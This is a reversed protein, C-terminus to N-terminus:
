RLVITKRVMRLISEDAGDAQLREPEVWALDLSEEGVRFATDAAQLLFRFDFHFHDPEDRREPILHVDLDFLAEDLLQLDEIGSEERAERLAAAQMSDDQEVHGGPQLWRELKRHHTLLVSGRDPSLVWASATVHGYPTHRSACDPTRAIFDLAHLRHGREAIDAPRYERLLEILHRQM